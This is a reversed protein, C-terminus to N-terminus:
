GREVIKAGAPIMVRRGVREVVLRGEAIARDITRMGLGHITSFEERSIFKRSAREALKSAVRDAITEALLDIAREDLVDM